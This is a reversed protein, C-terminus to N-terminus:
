IAPAFGNFSGGWYNREEVRPGFTAVIRAQQSRSLSRWLGNSPLIKESGRVIPDELGYNHANEFFRLMTSSYQLGMSQLTATLVQEPQDCLEEYVIRVCRKPHRREFELIAEICLHTHNLADEFDDDIEGLRWGRRYLSHVVDGPHRLILVYRPRAAFLRDIAELHLSYIPTKDAWIRKGTAIRYAEHLSSAKFALDRRMLNYDYGFGEYGALIHRDELMAAYKEIVFSEPPCAIEPHSNFIRRVLSTGSRHPGILFIPDECQEIESQLVACTQVEIRPRGLYSRIRRYYWAFIQFLGAHGRAWRRGRRDSKIRQTLKLDFINLVRTPFHFMLVVALASSAGGMCLLMGVAGSYQTAIAGSFIGIATFGFNALGLQLQRGSAVYCPAMLIATAHGWLFLASSIIGVHSAVGLSEPIFWKFLDDGLLFSFSLLGILSGGLVLIMAYSFGRLWRQDNESLANVLAPLLPRTILALPNCLRGILITITSYFSFEYNGSLMSVLLGAGFIKVYDTGGFILVPIAVRLQKLLSDRRFLPRLHLRRERALQVTAGIQSLLPGGFYILLAAVLGLLGLLSVTLLLVLTVLSGLFQWSSTKQDSRLALRYADSWSLLGQAQALLFTALTLLTAAVNIGFIYTVPLIVITSISLAIMYLASTEREASKLADEDKSELALSLYWVSAMHAAGFALTGLAAFSILHLFFAYQDPPLAHSIIPLGFFVLALGSLRAFIGYTVSRGFKKNRPNM